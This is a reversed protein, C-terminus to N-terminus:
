INNNYFCDTQYESLSHCTLFFIMMRQNDVVLVQGKSDLNNLGYFTYFLKTSQGM